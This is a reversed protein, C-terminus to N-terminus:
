LGPDATYLQHNCSQDFDYVAIVAAHQNAPKSINIPSHLVDHGYRISGYEFVSM